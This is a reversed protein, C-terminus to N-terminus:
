NLLFENSYTLYFGIYVKFKLYLKTYVSPTLLKLAVFTKTGTRSFTFPNIKKKRIYFKTVIHAYYSFSIDTLWRNSSLMYGSVFVLFIYFSLECVYLFRFSYRVCPVYLSQAKPAPQYLTSSSLTFYMKVLCM